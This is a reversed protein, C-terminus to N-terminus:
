FKHKSVALSIGFGGLNQEGACDFKFRHFGCFRAVSVGLYPINRHLTFWYFMSPFREILIKHQFSSCYWKLTSLKTRDESALQRPDASQRFRAKLNFVAKRKLRILLFIKFFCFM